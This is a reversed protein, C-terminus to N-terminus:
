RPVLALAWIALLVLLAALGPWWVRWRPISSDVTAGPVPPATSATLPSQSARLQELEAAQRGITEAQERVTAQSRELAAVLPVLFTESWAALQASPSADTRTTVGPEQDRDYADSAGASAQVPLRVVFASGQPRIVTEAELHGARIRRRVTAVSVGLIAAAEIVSVRQFTEGQDTM